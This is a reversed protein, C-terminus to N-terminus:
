RSQKIKQQLVTTLNYECGVACVAVLGRTVHINSLHLLMPPPPPDIVQTCKIQCGGSDGASKEVSWRQVGMSQGM